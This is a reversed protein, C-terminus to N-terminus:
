LFLEMYALRELWEDITTVDGLILHRLDNKCLWSVFTSYHSCGSADVLRSGEDYSCDIIQYEIFDMWDDSKNWFADPNSYEYAACFHEGLEDVVVPVDLLSDLLVFGATGNKSFEVIIGPYSGDISLLKEDDRYLEDGPKLALLASTIDSYNNDNVKFM